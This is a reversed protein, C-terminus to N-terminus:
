RCTVNQTPLFEKGLYAGGLTGGITAATKGKGDGINSGIIGGGVGGAVSGVVNGDDCNVVKPPQAPAPATENWRIQETQTVHSSKPAETKAIKDQNLVLASAGATAAVLAIASLVIITIHKRKMM